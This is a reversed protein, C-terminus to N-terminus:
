LSVLSSVDGAMTVINSLDMQSSIEGPLSSASNQGMSVEKKTLNPYDDWNAAERLGAIETHQFPNNKNAQRRKSIVQHPDYNIAQGM